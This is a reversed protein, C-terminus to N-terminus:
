DYHNLRFYILVSESLSLGKESGVISQHQQPMYPVSSNLTVFLSYLLEIVTYNKAEEIENAIPCAALMDVYYAEVFCIEIRDEYRSWGNLNTPLEDSM